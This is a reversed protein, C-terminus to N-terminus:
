SKRSRDARTVAVAVSSVAGAVAALTTCVMTAIEVDRKEKEHKLKDAMKKEQGVHKDLEGILEDKIRSADATGERVMIEECGQDFFDICSQKCNQAATDLPIGEQVAKQLMAEFKKVTENRLKRLVPICIEEHVLQLLDNSLKHRMDDRVKLCYYKTDQDYITLCAQVMGKLMEGLQLNWAFDPQGAKQLQGLFESSQKFANIREKVVDECRIRAMLEKHSPVDFDKNEKAMKWIEKASDSFGSGPVLAQHGRSGKDPFLRERFIAVQEKFKEKKHVYHPLIQVEVNFIKSLETQKFKQPKEVSEWLEKVDKYIHEELKEPPTPTEDRLVFILTVRHASRKVQQIMVEFVTRLLPRCAANELGIHECNINILVINSVALAFLASQKEFAAGDQGSARQVGDTGELDLILTCYTIDPCKALWIGRTTQSRGELADMEKFDTYFLHNLLTSKGSSQPGIISIISYSDGCNALKVKEMFEDLRNKYFKGDEDVLQFSHCGCFHKM